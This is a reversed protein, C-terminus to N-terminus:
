GNNKDGKEKADDFVDKMMKVAENYTKDSEQKNLFVEQEEIAKDVDMEEWMLGEAEEAKFCEKFSKGIEADEKRLANYIINIIECSDAGIDYFDGEIDLTKIFGNEVWIRIM